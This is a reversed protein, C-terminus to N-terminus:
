YKNDSFHRETSFDNPSNYYTLFKDLYAIHMVERTLRATDHSVLVLSLGMNQNLNKLLKYFDDQSAQDIGTTPEDLFILEPQSVLARAIFVRQAQGGSLNGILEQQYERMKVQELSNDIIKFDQSDLRHFLGRRAYRGMSVVERVTAPFNTDFNTAQQPVYSIKSYDKFDKIDVGFLKIQGQFSTLLRLLVKLLTTKGAGNPGIIGLYDGQHINLSIQNLILQSKYAFSLKKIEVINHHHNLKLM